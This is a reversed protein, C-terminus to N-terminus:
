GIMELLGALDRREKATLEPVTGNWQAGKTERHFSEKIKNEIIQALKRFGIRMHHKKYITRAQLHAMAKIASAFRPLNSKFSVFDGGVRGATIEPEGESGEYSNHFQVMGCNVLRNFTNEVTAPEGWLTIFLSAGTQNFSKIINKM